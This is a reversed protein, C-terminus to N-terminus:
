RRSLLGRETRTGGGNIHSYIIIDRYGCLTVDDNELSLVLLERQDRWRQILDRPLSVLPHRKVVGNKAEFSPNTM